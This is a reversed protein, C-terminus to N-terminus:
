FEEEKKRTKYAVLVIVLIFSVFILIISQLLSGYEGYMNVYKTQIFGTFVENNTDLFSVQTWDETYSFETVYIRQGQILVRATLTQPRNALAYVAIDESGDKITIEANTSITPTITTVSIRLCDIQRIYGFENDDLEILYFSNGSSDTLDFATGTVEFEDDKNTTAVVIPSDLGSNLSTPYKYINTNNNLTRVDEYAQVEDYTLIDTDAKLIYGPINLNTNSNTYLVYYYDQNGSVDSSLIILKEGAELLTTPTVNYPTQLLPCDTNTEIITAGSTLVTEDTYIIPNIFSNIDETFIGAYGVPSIDQMTNSSINLGIINGNEINININSIDLLGNGIISLSSEHLFTNRTLKHIKSQTLNKDLIFLNNACDVAIKDVSPISYTSIDIQNLSLLNDFYYLNNGGNLNSIYITEGNPSLILESNASFVIGLSNGDIYETIQNSSPEKKIIMNHEYDIAYLNNKLDNAMSSIHGMSIFTQNTSIINLNSTFNYSSDFEQIRDLSDYVYINGNPLVTILNPNVFNGLEAGLEGFEEVLGNKWVVVKNNLTNTFYIEADSKIAFDTFNTSDNTFTTSVDTLEGSIVDEANVVILGSSFSSVFLVASIAILSFFLKFNLARTSKM